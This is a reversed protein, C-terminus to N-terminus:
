LGLKLSLGFKLAYRVRDSANSGKHWSRHWNATYWGEAYQSSMQIPRDGSENAYFSTSQLPDDLPNFFLMGATVCARHDVHISTTMGPQDRLIECFPRSNAQLQELSTSAGWVHTALDSDWIEALLVQQQDKINNCIQDLRSGHLPLTQERRQNFQTTLQWESAELDTLLDHPIDAHIRYLFKHHNVSTLKFM